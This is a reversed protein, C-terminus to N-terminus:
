DRPGWELVKKKWIYVLGAFLAIIFVSIYAYGRWGLLDFAVAWSYVFVSELDFVIFFIAVLYFQVPLRHRTQGTPIIGSEYPRLQEQTRRRSGPWWSLFMLVGVIILVLATYIGLGALEVPDAPKEGALQGAVAPLTILYFM